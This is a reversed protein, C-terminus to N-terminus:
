FTVLAGWPRIQLIIVEYYSTLNAFGRRVVTVARRRLRPSWQSESEAMVFPSGRAFQNQVSLDIKKPPFPM